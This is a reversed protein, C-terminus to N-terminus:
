QPSVGGMFNLPARVGFRWAFFTGRLLELLALGTLRQGAGAAARPGGEQMPLGLRSSQESEAIAVL